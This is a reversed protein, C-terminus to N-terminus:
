KTAAEHVGDWDPGPPDRRFAAIRAEYIQFLEDLDFAGSEARAAALAREAGDWDRALYAKLMDGMRASVARFAPDAAVTADGLLAYIREPAAKGKVRVTDIALLAFEGAAGDATLAGVLVPVGYASSQGELRSALNVPDGLVSYDFRLDSGLNGVVCAGTNIGIGIRLPLFPLDAEAAERARTENLDRLGALMALAAACAHAAHRPDDLPANWFAMVADGMYKDITGNNNLVALTLPTLFRNMLRTLGQPDDKFLESIMTFGRADCFLITMEKREGGLVLRGPERALQEVLAPSLYQSFAGRVQRRRAEERFYNIFVLFVYIALGAVLTYAVDILVGERTYFSWSGAVLAAALGGGLLLTTLAGFIPVLVIMSLGVAATLILEAGLAYHPRHLYSKSLITELMQAHIAVGPTAADLPTSKVDFLGTASSGILVLKGALAERGVAGTIIDKASVYANPDSRAYNVWIRGNRDTPIEIGAVAIGRIGASDSRVLFPAQGTALRLMELVLTPVVVGEVTILAPVRRVIGDREPLLTFMARGMAAEELVPINRVMGPFEPLFPRPDGGIAAMPTEALPHAENPLRRPYGSQGLVVPSERLVHALAEDNDPLSRLQVRLSEDIGALSDALAAPSLRDPEPFVSDFGIMVGGAAHIRRILMALLTRPWPWQGLEAMSEEDIDVVTVPQESAQRPHIIQYLDFTRLRLTEVPAPDWVRVVIFVALLVIGLFRGFGIAQLVRRGAAAGRRRSPSGSAVAPVRRGGKDPGDAM